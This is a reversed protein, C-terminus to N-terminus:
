AATRLAKYVSGVGIQLSKAIDKIGAGRERLLRVAEAVSENMKSPRGFKVGRAKARERGLATRELIQTREYSALCAFLNFILQGTPSSTDIQQKISIFDTRHVKLSELIELCNKLSRGLRDISYIVVADFKRAFADELLRTLAPRDDKGTTGSITDCYEGVVQYGCRNAYARCEQLQVDTSQGTTSVRGYIAVRM